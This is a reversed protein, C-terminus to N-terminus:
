TLQDGAPSSTEQLNFDRGHGMLMCGRPRCCCSSAWNLRTNELSCNKWDSQSMAENATKKMKM